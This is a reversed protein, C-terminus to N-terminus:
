DKKTIVLTETPRPPDNHQSFLKPDDLCLSFIELTEWANEGRPQLAQLERVVVRLDALFKPDRKSLTQALSVSVVFGPQLQRRKPTPQKRM